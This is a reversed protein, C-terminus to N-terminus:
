QARGRRRRSGLALSLQVAQAILPLPDDRRFFAHTVSRQPRLATAAIDWRGSGLAWGVLRADADGWRYRVGPTAVVPEPREGLAWRCWLSALPVGAAQALAMSGYPRPNFDLTALRGDQEILELQFIGRWGLLALLRTVAAITDGPVVITEAFTGDGAAAPWTRAYQAGVLGLIGGDVAVGAISQVSGSVRRQVLWPGNGALAPGLADEDVALVSALRVLRDGSCAVVTAPKVLVPFGLQRAAARATGRDGCVITDPAALGAQEAYRLLELKSLCRQVVAHDPLVVRVHPKLRDRGLSVALLSVDTGPVLLAPRHSALLEILAKLFAELGARPDPVRRRGHCHRSWFGPAVRSPATGTVTYGTDAMCRLAALNAREHVDTLVIDSGGGRGLPPENRGSQTM